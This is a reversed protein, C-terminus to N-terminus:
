CKPTLWHARSILAMRKDFDVSATYRQVLEAVPEAFRASWAQDKNDLSNKNKDLDAM